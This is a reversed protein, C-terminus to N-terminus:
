RRRLVLGGRQVHEKMEPELENFEELEPRYWEWQIKERMSEPMPNGRLGPYGASASRGGCGDTARCNLFMPTVGKDVHVVFIWKQCRACRYANEAGVDPCDFDLVQDEGPRLSTRVVQTGNVVKLGRRYKRSNGM